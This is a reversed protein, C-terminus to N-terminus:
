GYPTKVNVAIRQEIQGSKVVRNHEEWPIPQGDTLYSEVVLEFADSIATVAKELDSGQSVAQPLNSCQVSYWGDEEPTFIAECIFQSMTERQQTSKQSPVQSM